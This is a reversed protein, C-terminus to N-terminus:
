KKKIFLFYIVVAAILLPAAEGDILKIVTSNSGIRKNVTGGYAAGSEANSGFDANGGIGPLM